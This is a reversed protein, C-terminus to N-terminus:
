PRAWDYSLEPCPSAVGEACSRVPGSRVGNANITSACNVNQRFAQGLSFHERV